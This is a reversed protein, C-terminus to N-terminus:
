RPLRYQLLLFVADLREAQASAWHLNAEQLGQVPSASGDPRQVWGEPIDRSIAVQIASPWVVVVAAPFVFQRSRTGATKPSSGRALIPLVAVNQATHEEGRPSVVEAEFTPAIVRAVMANSWANM